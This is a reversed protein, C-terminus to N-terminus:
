DPSFASKWDVAQLKKIFWQLAQGSTEKHWAMYIFEPHRPVECKKVVLSGQKVENTIMHKPLFGIGLGMKQASIKSSMNSVRVVRQSDLLGVNRRTHSMSSDAVVISPYKKIDEGTIICDNEALEHGAAVAFCFEVQAIEIANFNGKPLEGSAGVVIQARNSLLSEWAGYLVEENVSLETMKNLQGFQSILSFIISMPVITDLTIVLQTEWGTELQQVADELVSTAALLERGQELVLRGASTLIARQKSRDFLAVDLDSELKAITYTLASPVKFLVKAAAAFSGQQDIAEIARLADLTIANKM